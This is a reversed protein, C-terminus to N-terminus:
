WASARTFLRMRTSGSVGKYYAGTKFSALLQKNEIAM